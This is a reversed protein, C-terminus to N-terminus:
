PLQLTGSFITVAQGSILVFDDQLELKLVGGRASAQYATLDTKGLKEAWYPALTCHASGTVPDEDIGIAPAFFRSVFDFEPDDSVATVMVGHPANAGIRRLDPRLERVQAASSLEFLYNDHSMGFFVPSTGLAAVIDAPAAMEQWKRRPFRLTIWEGKPLAQLEGSRTFFRMPETLSVTKTVILVHASALTAHGCLDMETKPTFWRLGFGGREPLMFATESLNMEAAIAQLLRDPLPESLLCVAAPNGTFPKATFADIHFLSITM